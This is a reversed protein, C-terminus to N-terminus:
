CQGSLLDVIVVGAKLVAFMDGMNACGGGSGGSEPGDPGVVIWCVVGCCGYAECACNVGGDDDSVIGFVAAGTDGIEGRVEHFM